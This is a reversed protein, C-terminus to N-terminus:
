KSELNKQLLDRIQTLLEEQKESYAFNSESLKEISDIIENKNQESKETTVIEDTPKEEIPQIEAPEPEIKETEVTEEMIEEATPVEGKKKKRRGWKKVDKKILTGVKELKERSKIVIKIALFIFFSIILFDLITQIFNGYYLASEAVGNAPDAPTIVWKWDSVSVGGTALSILPMIIDNVLSTTIKGFAGGVVVGVALDLVNGKSIFAKFESWFKKM